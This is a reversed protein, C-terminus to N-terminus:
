MNLMNISVSSVYTDKKKKKKDLFFIQKNKFKLSKSSKKKFIAVSQRKGLCSYSNPSLWSQGLFVTM